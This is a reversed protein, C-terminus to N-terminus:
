SIHVIQGGGLKTDAFSFLPTGYIFYLGDINAEDLYPPGSLLVGHHRHLSLIKKKKLNFFLKMSERKEEGRRLAKWVMKRFYKRNNNSNNNNNVLTGIIVYHNVPSISARKYNSRTNKHLNIM